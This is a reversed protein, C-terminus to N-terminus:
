EVIIKIDDWECDESDRMVDCINEAIYDKREKPSLKIYEEGSIINLIPISEDEGVYQFKIKSAHIRCWGSYEIIIEAEEAM